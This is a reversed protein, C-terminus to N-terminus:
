QRERQERCAKMAAWDYNGVPHYRVCPDSKVSETVQSGLWGVAFTCLVIIFIARLWKPKERKM